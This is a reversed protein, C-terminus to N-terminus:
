PASLKAINTMASRRLTERLDPAAKMDRPLVELVKRYMELGRKKDGSKVLVEGLSDYTNASDPYLEADLTLVAVAKAFDKREAFDYGLRNLHGEAVGPDDAWATKLARWGTLAEPIRGETLLESPTRFDPGLRRIVIREKGTVIPNGGAEASEFVYRIETDRRVFTDASIPLLEYEPAAAPQAFLRSGRAVLTLVEDGNLAYRGARAAIRAPPLSITEIPPNWTPDWTPMKQWGPFPGAELKWGTSSIGRGERADPVARENTWSRLTSLFEEHTRRHPPTRTVDPVPWLRITKDAGASAVWKGDPSFAVAKVGGEHGFFLHPEAGSIPGIRVIGDDGGSALVTETPNMAAAYAHPHSGISTPANGELNFRRLESRMSSEGRALTGIGFRGTRSMALVTDLAYSLVRSRGDRVDFLVLGTGSVGALIRDEDLFSLSWIGGNFGEGAGPVPGLLQVAANELNWIRIVKESAPSTAPAAAVRQGDPAFAVCIDSASESFGKMERPTSGDIPVVLVQGGYGSVAVQTGSRDVSLGSLNGKARLLVRPEHAALAGLPWARLTGDWSESVLTRGDPTFALGDVLGENGTIVRSYTAGLPWFALDDKHVTAVWREEPDFAWDWTNSANTQLVLPRTGTPARLNWLQVVTHLGGRGRAQWDSVGGASLWTGKPSYRLQSSYFRRNGMIEFTRLPKESRESVPWILIKGSEDLAALSGGDPNFAVASVNVPHEAVLRPPLDWKELSRVYVSRGLAYVLRMSSPDFDSCAYKEMSGILRADGNPVSSWRVVTRGGVLTSTYFGGDTMWLDSPGEDLKLKRILKGEPVSWFRVDGRRIGVLVDGSRGFRVTLEGPNEGPPTVPYEGQLTLLQRGDSHRLEVKRSGSVALWEGNPSFDASWAELGDEPNRSAQTAVPGITLVRLAFRRGEDTDALELSKIAYALAGTPYRELELQGLALLKNAEAHLSEVKSRRWLVGAIGLGAVAAMVLAATFVRRRREKRSTVTAMAKAFDEELTSLKGAYRERWAQYDLYSSGRWLLDEARGKEHWVRAARRLQVRLQTGDAAQTQWRVLRPWARLLSEHLIEIQRSAPRGANGEAEYSTLLRAEILQELVGEVAARDPFASLLDERDLVARTGEATTLNAFIHRVIGEGQPGIRELTAEAHQVLAGEVGGIERYAEWTLVKKERDRHTWLSSVAFALLPLAGRAGEVAHLFEDVLSDDEFRYGHRAAPEAVARRLGERTLPGLPTLQGFIPTLAPHDHCRMLFDDRMSLVVHVEAEDVVKALLAVFRARTEPPNLTFLEEVQDVVILADEHGRRWRALLSIATEPDEFGALKRLAEADGSLEPGLAQGLGRLPATGPTSVIAAWGKPKGAVVGARVFSTKGAGSPGIVALLHQERLKAWFASVEKERGFFLAGDEETFSSLGPYPSREEVDALATTGTPRQLTAELALSLDEASQFRDERRKELCREVIRELGPSIGAQRVSLKGPSEHLIAALTAPVTERRFPQARSFLEYLVVGLSFLDSRPDVGEARIQEPSMYAVTGLLVGPRTVSATEARPDVEPRSELKAIGFDLIKVRGDTMLFLNEPKLDRHVIRKRHAAALGQAVQIGWGVVQRPTPARRMLVERLTEGELLETVVYPRDEHRGVDHITLINPHNLAGVARAEREFRNLSAPDTAVSEPLVKVAVDRALRTDKARYVEGMGGAGLPALIEYPGLRTGAIITM